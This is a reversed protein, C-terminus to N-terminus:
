LTVLVDFFIHEAQPVGLLKAVAEGGFSAPWAGCIIRKTRMKKM